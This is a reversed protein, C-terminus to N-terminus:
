DDTGTAPETKPPKRARQAKRARASEPQGGAAQRDRALVLEHEVRAQESPELLANEREAPLEHVAPFEPAAVPRAPAGEPVRLVTQFDTVTTCASASAAITAIVSLRVALGARKRRGEDTQRGEGDM